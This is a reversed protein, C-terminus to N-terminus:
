KNNFNDAWESVDDWDTCDSMAQRLSELEETNLTYPVYKELDSYYMSAKVYVLHLIYQDSFIDYSFRTEAYVKFESLAGDVTAVFEFDKEFGKFDIVKIDKM